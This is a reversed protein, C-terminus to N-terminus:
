QDFYTLSRQFTGKSKICFSKNTKDYRKVSYSKQM